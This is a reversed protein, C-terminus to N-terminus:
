REKIVLEGLSASTVEDPSLLCRGKLLDKFFGQSVEYTSISGDMLRFVLSVVKGIPEGRPGVVQAGILGGQEAFVLLGGGHTLPRLSAEGTITVGRQDVAQVDAPSVEWRPRKEDSVLLSVVRQNAFDVKAGRVNRSAPAPAGSTLVPKDLIAAYNVEPSREISAAGERGAELSNQM